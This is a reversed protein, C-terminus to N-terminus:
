QLVGRRPRYAEWVGVCLALWSLGVAYGALVDGLYHDGVYLRSFGITLILAVLALALAIRRRPRAFHVWLLVGCLGYAILAALAHGSPFGWEFALRLPDAVPPRVADYVQKLWWNLFFGGFFAVGWLTLDAWRRRYTLLLAGAIALLPAGPDALESFFTMVVMGLPTRYPLLYEAVVRDVQLLPRQQFVVEVIGFFILLSIASILLCFQVFPLRWGGSRANRTVQDRTLPSEM